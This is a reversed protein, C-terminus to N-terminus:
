LSTLENASLATNKYIINKMTGTFITLSPYNDVTKGINVLAAPDDPTVTISKDLYVNNDIYGLIRFCYCTIKM